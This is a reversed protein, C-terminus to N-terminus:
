VLRIDRIKEALATTGRQVEGVAEMMMVRPVDKEGFTSQPACKPPEICPKSQPM